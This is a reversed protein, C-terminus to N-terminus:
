TKDKIFLFMGFQQVIPHAFLLLTWLTQRVAWVHVSVGTETGDFAGGRCLQSSHQTTQWFCFVRCLLVYM